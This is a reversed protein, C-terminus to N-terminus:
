FLFSGFFQWRAKIGGPAAVAAACSRRFWESAFTGNIPEPADDM